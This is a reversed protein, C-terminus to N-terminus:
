QSLDKIAQDLTRGGPLVADPKRAALAKLVALAGAKDHKDYELVISKNFHAIVHEPSAAIAKDFSDIAQDFQGVQRYMVGLDTLVDANGPRLTLSKEYANIAKRPQKTDYYLNGLETWAAPNNPELQVQKEMARIREAMPGSVAPSVAAPSASEVATPASPAGAKNGLMGHVTFGLFFGVALALGAGLAAVGRGVSDGNGKKANGM